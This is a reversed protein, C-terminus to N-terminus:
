VRCGVTEGLLELGMNDGDIGDVLEVATRAVIAGLLAGVEYAGVVAGVRERDSGGDGGVEVRGGISSSGVEAGEAAGVVDSGVLCPSVHDGVAEGAKVGGAAM